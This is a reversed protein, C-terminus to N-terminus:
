RTKRSGASSSTPTAASRTSSPARRVAPPLGAEGRVRAPASPQTATRRRRRWRTSSSPRARRCIASSRGWAYKGLVVLVIGFVVVTWLARGNDGAFPNDISSPSTSSTVRMVRPLTWSCVRPGRGSRARAACPRCIVARGEGLGADRESSAGRRRRHPHVAVAVRRACTIPLRSWFAALNVGRTRSSSRTRRARVACASTRTSSVPAPIAGSTNGRTNSGKVCASCSSEVAAFAAEAEAQGDDLTQDLHVAARDLRSRRGPGPARRELEGSGRSGAPGGLRSAGPRRAAHAERRTNIMSSLTSEASM